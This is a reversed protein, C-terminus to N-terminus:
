EVDIIGLYSVMLRVQDIFDVGTAYETLLGVALGMMVWRGNNIENKRTWGFVQADAITKELSKERLYAQMAKAQQRQYEVTVSSPSSDARPASDSSSSAHCPSVLVRGRAGVVVCAHSPGRRLDVGRGAVGERRIVGCSAQM